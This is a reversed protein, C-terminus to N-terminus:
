PRIGLIVAKESPEILTIEQEKGIKFSFLTETQKLFLDKPSIVTNTYDLTISKPDSIRNFMPTENKIVPAYLAYLKMISDIWLGLKDKLLIKNGEKTKEAPQLKEAVKTKVPM